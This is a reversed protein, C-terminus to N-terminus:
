NDSVRSWADLYIKWRDPETQKWVILYKGRWAQESGDALRTRGEYYGWD